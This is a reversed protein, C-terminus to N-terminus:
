FLDPVILPIRLLLINKLEIGRIDSEGPGSMAPLVSSCQEIMPKPFEAPRWKTSISPELRTSGADLPCCYNPRRVREANIIHEASKPPWTPLGLKKGGIKSFACYSNSRELEEWSESCLYTPSSRWSITYSKKSRRLKLPRRPANYGRVQKENFTSIMFKWFFWFTNEITSVEPSIRHSTVARWFFGGVTSYCAPKLFLSKESFTHFTTPFQNPAHPTSYGVVAVWIIRTEEGLTRGAVM